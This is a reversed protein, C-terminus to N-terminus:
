LFRLSLSWHFWRWSFRFLRDTATTITTWKMSSAIVITGVTLCHFCHPTSLNQLSQSFLGCDWCRRVNSPQWRSKTSYAGGPTNSTHVACIVEWWVLLKKICWMNDRCNSTCWNDTLIDIHQLPEVLLTPDVSYANFQRDVFVKYGALSIPYM